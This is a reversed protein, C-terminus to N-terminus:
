YHVFSFIIFYGKSIETKDRSPHTLPKFGYIYKRQRFCTVKISGVTPGPEIYYEGPHRIGYRALEVCSSALSTKNAAFFFHQRLNSKANPGIKCTRIDM